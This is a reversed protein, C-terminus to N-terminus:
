GEAAPPPVDLVERIKRLLTETAFPKQVFAVGSDLIGHHVISADTYGSMYVVRLKPRTARILEAVRKGGMGPMVVDTLMVDIRVDSQVGKVIAEPGNAAEIV